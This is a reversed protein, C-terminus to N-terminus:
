RCGKCNSSKIECRCMIYHNMGETKLSFKVIFRMTIMEPRIKRSDYTKKQTRINKTSNPGVLDPFLSLRFEQPVSIGWRHIKNKNLLIFSNGKEVTDRNKMITLVHLERRMFWRSCM